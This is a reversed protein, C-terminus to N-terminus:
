TLERGPYEAYPAGGKKETFFDMSFPLMVFLLVHIPTKNVPNFFGMLSWFILVHLFIDAQKGMGRTTSRYLLVIMGVFPIIRIIGFYALMDFWVNHDRLLVREANFQEFGYIGFLPHNRFVSIADEIYGTRMIMTNLGYADAVGSLANAADLFKGKLFPSLWEVGSLSRMLQIIYEKSVIFLLGFCCVALTVWKPKKLVLVALIYAASLIIATAFNAYYICALMVAVIILNVVKYKMNRHNLILYIVLIALAYISAFGMIMFGSVSEDAVMGALDRALYPNRICSLATVISMLVNEAIYMTWLRKRLPQYNQSIYRNVVPLMLLLYIATYSMKQFFSKLFLSSLLVMICYVMQWKNNIPIRFSVPRYALFFWLLYVSMFVPFGIFKFQGVLGGSLWSLCFYCAFEELSVMGIRLSKRM